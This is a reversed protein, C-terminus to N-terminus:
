MKELIEAKKTRRRYAVVLEERKLEDFQELFARAKERKEEKNYKGM